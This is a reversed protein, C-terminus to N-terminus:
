RCVFWSLFTIVLGLILWTWATQQKRTLSQIYQRQTDAQSLPEGPAYFHTITLGCKPCFASGAPLDANCSLCHYKVPPAPPVPSGDFSVRCRPCFNAKPAVDAGCASCVSCNKRM